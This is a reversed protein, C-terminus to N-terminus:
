KQLNTRFRVASKKEKKERTAQMNTGGMHSQGRQIHGKVIPLNM